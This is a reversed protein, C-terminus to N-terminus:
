FLGMIDDWGGFADVLNAATSLGGLWTEYQNQKKQQNLQQQQLAFDAQWQQDALVAQEKQFAFQDEQFAKNAEVSEANKRDLVMQTAIGQKAQEQVMPAYLNKKKKLGMPSVAGMQASVSM